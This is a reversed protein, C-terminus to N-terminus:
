YVRRRFKTTKVLFFVVVSAIACLTFNVFIKTKHKTFFNPQSTDKSLAVSTKEELDDKIKVIPTDETIKKVQVETLVKNNEPKLLGDHMQKVLDKNLLLINKAKALYKYFIHQHESEQGAKTNPSIDISNHFIKNKIIERVTAHAKQWDGESLVSNTGFFTEEAVRGSLYILLEKEFSEKTKINENQGHAVVLHCKGINNRPQVSIEHLNDNYYHKMMAHGATHWAYIDTEKDSFVKQSSVGLKVTQIADTMAIDDIILLTKGEVVNGQSDLNGAKINKIAWEKKATEIVAKLDAGSMGETKDFALNDIDVAQFLEQKKGIFYGLIDKRGKKDPLDLLIHKELRGSRTAAADLIDKRNTAGIVYVDGEKDFGDMQDLFANVTKISEEQTEATRAPLLADIEDIFLISPSDNRVEKFKKILNEAGSNQFSTGFNTGNCAYFPLGATDALAEALFTKGTGPPGYFLYGKPFKVDLKKCVQPNKIYDLMEQLIKVAEDLGKVNKLSLKKSWSEKDKRFVYVTPTDFSNELLEKLTLSQKNKQGLTFFVALLDDDAEKVNVDLKSLPIVEGKENKDGQRSNYSPKDTRNFEFMKDSEKTNSGLIAVIQKEPVNTRKWPIFKVEINPFFSSKKLEKQSDEFKTEVITKNFSGDQYSNKKFVKQQNTVNTKVTKAKENASSSPFLENLKTLMKGYNELKKTQYETLTKKIKKDYLDNFFVDNVKAENDLAENDLAENVATELNNKLDNVLENDQNNFGQFVEKQQQTLPELQQMLEFVKTKDEEKQLEAYENVANKFEFLKDKFVKKRNNLLNTKLEPNQELYTEEAKVFPFCFLVFFM